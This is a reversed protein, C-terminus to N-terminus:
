LHPAALCDGGLHWLLKYAINAADLDPFIFINASGHLSTFPYVKERMEPM